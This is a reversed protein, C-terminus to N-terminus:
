DHTLVPPKTPDAGLALVPQFIGRRVERVSVEDFLGEKCFPDEDAFQRAEEWSQAAILYFSGVPNTNVQQAGAWIIRDLRAMLYDTHDQLHKARITAADLGTKDSCSIAFFM